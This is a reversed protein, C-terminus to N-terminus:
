FKFGLTLLISDNSYSNNVIQQTAVLTRYPIYEEEFLTKRYGLDVFFYKLRYGLGLSYSTNTIDKAAYPTGNLGIGGRIRLNKLAYEGGVRINIASTLSNSIDDNIETQYAEDEASSSNVILNFTSTSYDVWEIDANIFGKKAIVAGISGIARLPTRLRYDFSGPESEQRFSQASGNDTFEYGVSTSWNDTLGILTPSHVAAGLRIMKNIHYILGLKLNIGVGSTTLNDDYDLSNFFPIQDGEDTEAYVKEATYSFFPVGVTAGVMIRENYNGALSFVMENVSGSTIVRQSKMVLDSQIFDSEYFTPDDPDTNYIAGVDFGLGAEFGDLEDPFLGDALEILRDTYSGNTTGEFFFEQNFNALRNFGIAFNSTTWKGSRMPKNALVLGINNFNFSTKSASNSGQGGEELESDAKALYVSPTFVLESNRYRALGAPNISITSYDAGLAGMAGGVGLTRATGGGQLNSFRLADSVNQGLAFSWLFTLAIIIKIKNM